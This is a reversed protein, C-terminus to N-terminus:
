ISTCPLASSREKSQKVKGKIRIEYHQTSLLATGNKLRRYSKVQTQVGTEWVMPSCDVWLDTRFDPCDLTLFTLRLVIFFSSAVYFKKFFRLSIVIRTVIVWQTIFVNRKTINLCFQRAHTTLIKVSNLCLSGFFTTSRILSCSFSAIDPDIM